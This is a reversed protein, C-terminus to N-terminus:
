SHRLRLRVHSGSPDVVAEEVLGGVLQEFRRRAGQDLWHQDGGATSRAEIELVEDSCRFTLAVRGPSGEPRLLLILTEDMAIRLDEIEPYDFGLRLALGAAAIRALRGYEPEAPLTLRIEDGTM